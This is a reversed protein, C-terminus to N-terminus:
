PLLRQAEDKCAVMAFVSRHTHCFSDIHNEIIHAVLALHHVDLQLCNTAAAARFAAPISVLRGVEDLIHGDPDPLLM